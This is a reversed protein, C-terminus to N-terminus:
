HVSPLGNSRNSGLKQKAELSVVSIEDKAVARFIRWLVFLVNVDIWLLLVVEQTATM